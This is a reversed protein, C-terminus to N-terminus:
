GQLALLLRENQVDILQAVKDLNSSDPNLSRGQHLDRKAADIRGEGLHALARNNFTRWNRDDIEIAMDCYRIAKAYQRDATYGACLNSFARARNRPASESKLGELTLHIGGTYDGTQLARAGAALSHNIGITWTSEAVASDTVMATATLALVLLCGYASVMNM